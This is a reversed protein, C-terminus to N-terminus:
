ALSSVCGASVVLGLITLLAISVLFLLHILKLERIILGLGGPSALLERGLRSLALQRLSARGMGHVMTRMAAMCPMGMCNAKYQNCPQMPLMRPPIAWCHLMTGVAAMCPMPGWSAGTM